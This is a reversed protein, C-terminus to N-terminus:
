CTESMGGPSLRDEPSFIRLMHLPPPTAPLMCSQTPLHAPRQEGCGCLYIFSPLSSFFPTLYSSFPSYSFLPLAPLLSPLFGSIFFPGLAAPRATHPDHLSCLESPPLRASFFRAAPQAPLRSGFGSVRGPSLLSSVSRTQLPLPQLSLSPPTAGWPGVVVKSNALGTARCQPPPLTGIFAKGAPTQSVAQREPNRISHVRHDRDARRGTEDRRRTASQIHQCGKPSQDRTEFEFDLNLCPCRSSLLSAITEGPGDGGVRARQLSWALEPRHCSSM